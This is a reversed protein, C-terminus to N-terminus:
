SVVRSRFSKQILSKGCGKLVKPTKNKRGGLDLLRTANQFEAAEGNANGKAQVFLGTNAYYHNEDVV